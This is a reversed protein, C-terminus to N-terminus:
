DKSQVKDIIKYLVLPIVMPIVGWLASFFYNLSEYYKALSHFVMTKRFLLDLLVGYVTMTAFNVPLGTSLYVAFFLTLMGGAIFMSEARGHQAFYEKLGWGSTGLIDSGIMIQTAADGIFGTIFALLLLRYRDM